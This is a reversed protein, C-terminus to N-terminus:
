KRLKFGRIRLYEPDRPESPVYVPVIGDDKTIRHYHANQGVVLSGDLKLDEILTEKGELVLVSRNSISWSGKVKQRLEVFSCAFSPQIIIKAPLRYRIGAFFTDTTADDISAGCLRLLKINANFYECEGSGACWPDLNQASKAAAEQLNNKVATFSIWREFQTFGIISEQTYMKSFDQMLCELRTPAKFVTKTADAYKPNVFETMAGGTRNLADLYDQLSFLLTNTNGPFPSLKASEPTGIGLEENSVDGKANMGSGKILTDVINYEVNLTQIQGEKELTMIAGLSEKPMRPITAFNMAYNNVKSVGLFSPLAKFVLPNTDQLIVMWKKGESLWKQPLGYQYLLIHVDGHGHPKGSVRGHEVAFRAENDILAPVKEQRMLTLQDRSMGFYNHEELLQLTRSHTDESTMIALPLITGSRDQLALISEIYLQLFCTETVLEVPLGVKISSYGLREGLGGAVLVFACKGLESIGENELAVFQDLNTEPNVSVGHPIKPTWGEFINVSNASDQLLKRARSIYSKIGGPYNKDFYKLDEVLLDRTHQDQGEPFLHSQNYDPDAMLAVVEQASLSEM